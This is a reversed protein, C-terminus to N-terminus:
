QQLQAGPHCELRHRQCRLGVPWALLCAPRHLDAHASGPDVPPAKRAVRHAYNEKRWPKARRLASPSETERQRTSTTIRILRSDVVGLESVSGFLAFRWRAHM